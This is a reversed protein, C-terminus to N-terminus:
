ITLDLASFFGDVNAGNIWLHQYIRSIQRTSEDVFRDMEPGSLYVYPRIYTKKIDEDTHQYYKQIYEVRQRVAEFPLFELGGTDARTTLFVRWFLCEPHDRVYIFDLGYWDKKVEWIFEKDAAFEAPFRQSTPVGIKESWLNDAILHFFYGMRFSIPAIDITNRLPLLFRRYFELDALERSAGQFNGFHTVEGPPTFKEWKEDPIGSDPAINGVAFSAPDLDPLLGLLNEAIRLHTIWTAM